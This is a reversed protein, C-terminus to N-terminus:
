FIRVFEKPVIVLYYILCIIAICILFLIGIASIIVSGSLCRVYLESRKPLRKMLYISKSSQYHYYYRYIVMFVALVAVLVFGEFAEPYNTFAPVRFGLAEVIMREGDEYGVTVAKLGTLLCASYMIFSWFCIGICLLVTIIIEFRMDYGVPYFRELRKKM